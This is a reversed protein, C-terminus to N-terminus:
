HRIRIDLLRQLINVDSIVSGGGGGDGGIDRGEEWSGRAYIKM